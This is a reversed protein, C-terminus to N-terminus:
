LWRAAFSFLQKTFLLETGDASIVSATKAIAVILNGTAKFIFVTTDSAIKFPM